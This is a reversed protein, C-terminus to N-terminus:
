TRIGEFERMETLARRLRFIQPNSAYKLRFGKLFRKEGVTNRDLVVLFIMRRRAKNGLIGLVGVGGWGVGIESM